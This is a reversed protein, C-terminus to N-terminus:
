CPMEGYKKKLYDVYFSPDFPGGCANEQLQVPTLLRGYRHIKEGLWGTVGSLEAAAVQQWVGPVDQELRPLMQAGYASGLAYSPFYGLDGCSWHVDQLVGDRDTEPRIGLYRGYMERWAEPLEKVTLSRSMLAKELEYRVLIHMPYTLEDAETRILSPRAVNVAQYLQEGTVGAFQEPFEERLLPLLAECFPRSRGILNEYFRSQSEHVAMSSGSGLCTGELEPATGLEYLAHGGEHIVSYLSSLVNGEDYNTTIRVCSRSSGGTFPHETEGLCCRERDIGMVQMIREALRKQRWAPFSGRLFAFDPLPKESQALIVPTLEKKLLDFFDDLKEITMGKEFSDLTVEYAPRSSDRYGAFRRRTEVIQELWPRFLSFDDKEKADHWATWAESTLRMWAAYEEGPITLLDGADEKLVEARRRIVRDESGSLAELMEATEPATMMRHIEGSIVEVVNGRDEVSRAPAATEGDYNIADLATNWAHLRKEFRELAEAAKEQTM